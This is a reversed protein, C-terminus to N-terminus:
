DGKFMRGIGGLQRESLWMNVSQLDGNKVLHFTVTAGRGIDSAGIDDEIDVSEVRPSLDDGMYIADHHVEYPAGREIRDNCDPCILWEFLPTGPERLRFVATAANPCRLVQCLM